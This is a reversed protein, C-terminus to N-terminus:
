YVALVAGLAILALCVTALMAALFSRLSSRPMAALRSELGIGAMAMALLFASLWTLVEALPVPVTVAPLLRSAAWQLNIDPLLGLTRLLALGVFGLVFRPFFRWWPVPHSVPQADVRRWWVGVLLVVPALLCMRAMKIIIATQGAELSHAFGAAVVQPTQHIALGTWIGFVRADMHMLSAVAPLVFMAVLGILTVTSVALAIENEKARVLPAIAVIATGGCIATGVGLLVGERLPLPWWRILVLFLLLAAVVQLCSLLLGATGVALLDFFDLRAGLLIVGVPLVKKISFSLGDRWAEGLLVLNGILLGLVIALMNPDALHRGSGTTFPWIPTRSLATATVALGAALVLGPGLRKFFGRPVPHDRSANDAAPVGEM